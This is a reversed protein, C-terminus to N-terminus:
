DREKKIIRGRGRGKGRISIYKKLFVPSPFLDFTRAEMMNSGGDQTEQVVQTPAEQIVHSPGGPGEEMVQSPGVQMVHSPGGPGEEM